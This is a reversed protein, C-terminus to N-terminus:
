ADQEMPRNAHVLIEGLQKISRIDEIVKEVEEINPVGEKLDCEFLDHGYHVAMFLHHRFRSIVLPYGARLYFATLGEYFAEPLRPDGSSTMQFHSRFEPTGLSQAEGVRKYIPESIHFISKDKPFIVTHGDAQRIEPLVVHVFLGRMMTVYSEGGGLGGDDGGFSSDGSFALDLVFEGAWKKLSFKTTQLHCDFLNIKGEGLVGSIHDELRSNEISSKFLKSAQIQKLTKDEKKFQYKWNPDVLRIMEPMIESKYREEIKVDPTKFVFRYLLLDVVFLVGGGIIVPLFFPLLFPLLGSAITCIVAIALLPKVPKHLFDYIRLSRYKRKRWQEFEDLKQQFETLDISPQMSINTQIAIDTFDQIGFSPTIHHNNSDKRHM